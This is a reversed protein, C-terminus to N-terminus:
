SRWTAACLPLLLWGRVHIEVTGIGWAGTIIRARPGFPMSRPGRSARSADHWLGGLVASVRPLVQLTIGGLALWICRFNSRISSRFGCPGARRGRRRWGRLVPFAASRGIGNGREAVEYPEGSVQTLLARLSEASPYGKADDFDGFLDGAAAAPEKQPSIEAAFCLGAGALAFAAVLLM